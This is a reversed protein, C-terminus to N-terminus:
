RAAPTPTSADAVTEAPSQATTAATQNLGYQRIFAARANAMAEERARAAEEPDMGVRYSHGAFDPLYDLDCALAPAGSVMTAVILSAAIRM